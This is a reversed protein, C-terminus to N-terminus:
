RKGRDTRQRALQWEYEFESSWDDLAHKIDKNIKLPLYFRHVNFVAKRRLYRAVRRISTRRRRASKLIEEGDEEGYKNMLHKRLRKWDVEVFRIHSPYFVDAIASLDQEADIRHRRLLFSHFEGEIRFVDLEEKEYIRILKSGKRSGYHVVRTNPNRDAVAKGSPGM